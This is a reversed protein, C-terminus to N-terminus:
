CHQEQLRRRRRLFTDTMGVLARVTQLHIELVIVHVLRYRVPARRSDTIMRYISRVQHIQLFPILLDSFFGAALRMNKSCCLIMSCRTHKFAICMNVVYMVSVELGHYVTLKHLIVSQTKTEYRLVIEVDQVNLRIEITRNHRRITRKYVTDSVANNVRRRENLTIGLMIFVEHLM